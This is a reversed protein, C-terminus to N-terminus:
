NSCAWTLPIRDASCTSMASTAPDLVLLPFDSYPLIVFCVLSFLPLSSPCVTSTFTM